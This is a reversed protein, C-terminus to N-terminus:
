NQHTTKKKCKIERRRKLTPSVDEWVAVMNPCSIDWEQSYIIDAKLHGRQKNEQLSVDEWVAVM